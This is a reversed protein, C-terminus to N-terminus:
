EHPFAQGPHLGERGFANQDDLPALRHDGEGLYGEFWPEVAAVFAPNATWDEILARDGRICDIRYQAMGLEPFPDVFVVKRDTPNGDEHPALADTFYKQIQGARVLVLRQGTGDDAAEMRWLRYLFFVGDPNTRPWEDDGSPFFVIEVSPILIQDGEPGIATRKEVAQYIQPSSPALSRTLVKPWLEPNQPLLSLPYYVAPGRGISLTSWLNPTSAGGAGPQMTIGGFRTRVDVDVAAAALLNTM